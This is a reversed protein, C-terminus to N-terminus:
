LVEAQRSGRRRGGEFRRVALRLLGALAVCSAAFLLARTGAVDLAGRIAYLVLTFWNVTSTSLDERARDFFLSWFDIRGAFHSMLVGILAIGVATGVLGWGLSRARESRGARRALVFMSAGLVLALLFIWSGTTVLVRTVAMARRFKTYDPRDEEPFAAVSSSGSTKLAGVGTELMSLLKREISRPPRCRPLNKAFGEESKLGVGQLMAGFGIEAIQFPSCNPLSAIRNRWYGMLSDLLVPKEDAFSVFFFLTDRPPFHRIYEVLTGHVDRAKAAVDEAGYARTLVTRIDEDTMEFLGGDFSEILADRELEFVVAPIGIAYLSDPDLAAQVAATDCASSFIVHSLLGAGLLVFLLISLV